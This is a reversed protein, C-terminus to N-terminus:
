RARGGAGRAKGHRHGRHGRHHHRKRHLKLKKKPGFIRLPPNGPNPVLTGPTPDDPEPPLSQCRDGVCVIPEVPDPFGGGARADYVDIAGPDAKVLSDSTLFFVDTADASADIFRGGDGSFSSIPSVCGFPGQCGGVGMAEWEYVDAAKNADKDGIGDTTDFFLRSGDDSMARPRYALTSGNVLAGPISSPGEPREGTPNCSACILDAAGGGPPPGYVYLESDPQGTEADINDFGTLEEKSLFAVHLGNASVRATATAPPYDSPVTVDAGEVIEATVGARWRQLGDADQYYVAEGDASAGLVGVVGGAPTLDTAGGGVAFRYLHGSELFFAVTGDASAVQFEDGTGIPGKVQVTQTGERLYLKDEASWYIRSGDASVAGTPAAVSAGSSTVTEGPLLNVATLGGASWDYLNTEEGDCHGPEGPAETANATLAACSSLVVHSLDPTAAAFGVELASPSLPSHAVDAADLLSSFSGSTGDRLYYAM